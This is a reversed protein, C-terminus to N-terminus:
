ADFVLVVKIEEDGSSLAEPADALGVRRTILRELWSRDARALAGPALEYHGHAANVTGLV